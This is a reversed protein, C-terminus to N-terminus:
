PLSPRTNVGTRELVERLERHTTDRELTNVWRRFRTFSTGVAFRDIHSKYYQSAEGMYFCM